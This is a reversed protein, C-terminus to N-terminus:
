AHVLLERLRDAEPTRASLDSGALLANRGAVLDRMAHWACGRASDRGFEWVGSNYNPLLFYRQFHALIVFAELEKLATKTWGPLPYATVVAGYAGLGRFLDVVNCEVDFLDAATAVEHTGRLETGMVRRRLDLAEGVYLTSTPPAPTPSPFEHDPAVFHYIGPETPIRVESEDRNAGVLVARADPAAWRIAADIAQWSDLNAVTPIM